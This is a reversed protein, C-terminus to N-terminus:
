KKLIDLLSFNASNAKQHWKALILKTLFIKVYKKLVISSQMKIKM